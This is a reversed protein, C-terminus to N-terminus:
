QRLLIDDKELLFLEKKLHVCNVKVKVSIPFLTIFFMNSSLLKVSSISIPLDKGKSDDYNKRYHFLLVLPWILLLALHGKQLLAVKGCRKNKKRFQM